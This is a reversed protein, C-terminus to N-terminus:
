GANAQTVARKAMVTILHARYEASAHMDSMLASSPVSVGELASADFNKSLAAELEKSRFVGDDGAGTM